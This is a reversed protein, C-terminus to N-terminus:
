DTPLKPDRIKNGIVRTADSCVLNKRLAWVKAWDDVKQENCMKDKFKEAKKVKDM